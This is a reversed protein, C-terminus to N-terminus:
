ISESHLELPNLVSTTNLALVSLSSSTKAQEIKTQPHPQILKECTCTLNTALGTFRITLDTIQDQYKLIKISRDM